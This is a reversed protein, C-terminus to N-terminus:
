LDDPGMGMGGDGMGSDGLDPMEKEIEEPSQGKELRDVVEGFEPPMEEGMENGMKRMMRGMAQPDNELGALASPDSFDSSLDDLRSDESKAVRVRPIGRRINASQCNPCTVKRKGYESFSMFVDFRHHCDLCIYDYNPMGM